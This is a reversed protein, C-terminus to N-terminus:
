ASGGDKRKWTAVLDPWRLWVPDAAAAALDGDLRHRQAEDALGAGIVAPHTEELLSRLLAASPAARQIAGGPECGDATGLGAAEFWLPMQAGIAPDRRQVRWADRLLGSARDFAAHESLPRMATFDHEMVLLAGGDRVLGWLRRLLTLPEPAAFLLSRAFVLDFPEGAVRPLSLLDGTVICCVDPLDVLPPQGSRQDLAGQALM